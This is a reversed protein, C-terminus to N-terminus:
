RARLEGLNFERLGPATPGVKELLIAADTTPLYFAEDFARIGLSLLYRELMEATFREKIRALAYRGAEEFTQVEGAEGFEWHHGDFSAAVSRIYNLFSTPSPGYLEFIVAPHGNAGSECTARIADCGVLRALMSMSSFADTGRHGNDFFACWESVTPIFLYRRTEVNTLPLLALLTSRLDVRLERKQLTVGRKAHIPGLWEVFAQAAASSSCRVFGITTTIPSLEANFLDGM